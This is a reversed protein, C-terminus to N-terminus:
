VNIRAGTTCTENIEIGQVKVLSNDLLEQAKKLIIEAIHESTPNKETILVKCGHEQLSQILPDGKWLINVHDFNDEVWDKLVRTEQFDILMDKDDLSNGKLYIKVNFSHGHNNTCKGTYNRLLRHAAEFRFKKTIIYDM